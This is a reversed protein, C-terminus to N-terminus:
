LGRPMIILVYKRFPVVMAAVKPSRETHTKKLLSIVPAGGAYSKTPPFFSSCMLLAARTAPATNAATVFGHDFLGFAQFLWLSASLVRPIWTELAQGM